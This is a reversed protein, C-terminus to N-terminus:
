MQYYEEEVGFIEKLTPLYKKPVNQKGKIWLNINQKRIGLREALEMHQM